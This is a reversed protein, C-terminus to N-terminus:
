ASKASTKEAAKAAVARETWTQKKTPTSAQAGTPLEVGTPRIGHKVLESALRSNFDRSEGALRDREAKLDDREKTIKTVNERETKVEAELTPVRGAIANAAALDATLKTVNAVATTHEGRLTELQALVDTQDPKSSM